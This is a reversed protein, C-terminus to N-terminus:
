EILLGNSDIHWLRQLYDHKTIIAHKIQGSLEKSMTFMYRSIFSAIKIILTVM